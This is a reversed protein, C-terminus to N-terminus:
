ELITEDYKTQITVIQQSDRYDTLRVEKEIANNREVCLPSTAVHARNCNPCKPPDQVKICANIRHGHQGYHSCTPTKEKCHVERHGYKQYAFCQVYGFYERTRCRQMGIFVRSNLFKGHIRPQVQYVGM